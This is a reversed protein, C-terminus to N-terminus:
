EIGWKDLVARIDQLAGYHRNSLGWYLVKDQLLSKTESRLGKFEKITRCLLELDENNLIKARGIVELLEEVKFVEKDTM